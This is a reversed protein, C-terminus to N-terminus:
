GWVGARRYGRIMLVAVIVQAVGIGGQLAVYWSPLTTSIVGGLELASVPVRIAGGVSALLVLWFVWRWRRVIGVLLAAILASIAVIFISEAAGDIGLAAQLADAAAVRLGVLLVWVGIFFGGVVRQTSSM